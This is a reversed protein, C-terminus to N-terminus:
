HKVSKRFFLLCKNLMLNQTFDDCSIKNHTHTNTYRHTLISVGNDIKYKTM